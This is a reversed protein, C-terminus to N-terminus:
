APLITGLEPQSWSGEDVMVAPGVALHTHAIFFIICILM